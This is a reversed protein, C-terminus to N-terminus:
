LSKTKRSMIQNKLSEDNSIRSVTKVNNMYENFFDEPNPSYSLIMTIKNTYINDINM